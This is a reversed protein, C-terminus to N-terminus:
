GPTGRSPLGPQHIGSILVNKVRMSKGWKRAPKAQMIAPVSAMILAQDVSGSGPARLARDEARAPSAMASRVKKWGYSATESMPARQVAGSRNPSTSLLHGQ